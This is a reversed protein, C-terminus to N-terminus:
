TPTRSRAARWPVHEVTDRVFVAGDGEQDISANGVLRVVIQAHQRDPFVPQQALRITDYNDYLLFDIWAQNDM